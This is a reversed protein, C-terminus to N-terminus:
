AAPLPCDERARRAIPRPRILEDLDSLRVLRRRRDVGDRYLPLEGAAIRRRLTRPALGRRRAAEDVAIYEAETTETM